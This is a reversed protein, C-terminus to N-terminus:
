EAEVREKELAAAALLIAEQITEVTVSGRWEKIIDDWSMGEAVQELVDKVFIRTGKFTVKGHCIESDAVIYKGLEKRESM